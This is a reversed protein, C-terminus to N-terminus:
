LGTAEDELLESMEPFVKTFSTGRIRDMLRIYERFQPMRRSWDEAMMFQVLGKLRPVGYQSAFFDPHGAFRQELWQYFEEYKRAVKQKFAPPLIKINLHAPHYVLHFNILGAGLPWENIRRYNQELKWKIFDPIYYINLAQV